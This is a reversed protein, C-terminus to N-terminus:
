EAARLFARPRIPLHFDDPGRERELPDVFDRVVDRLIISLGRSHKQDVDEADHRSKLTKRIGASDNGLDFAWIDSLDDESIVPNDIANFTLSDRDQGNSVAFLSQGQLFDLLRFISQDRGNERRM